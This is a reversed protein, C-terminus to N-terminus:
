KIFQGIWEKWSDGSEEQFINWFQQPSVVPIGDYHGLKLLHRDSSIVYNAEAAVASEVLKNDDPDEVVALRETADGVTRVKEFYIDLKKKYDMDTVKKGAMLCNEALTARNAFALVKGDIVADIIRNAYNYDDHSGNILLNTDIVVKFM